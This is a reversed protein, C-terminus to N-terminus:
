LSDQYLYDFSGLYGDERLIKSVDAQHEKPVPGLEIKRVIGMEFDEQTLELDKLFYGRVMTSQTAYNEHAVVEGHPTEVIKLRDCLLKGYLTRSTKHVNFIKSM